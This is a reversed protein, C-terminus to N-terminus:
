CSQLLLLMLRALQGLCEGNIGVAFIVADAQLTSRKGAKNVVNVATVATGTDNLVVDTAFTSGSITAGLSRIRDALPLLIREAVSGRCWKIDFDAQHALAACARVETLGFARRLAAHSCASPCSTLWARDRGLWAAYATNNGPCNPSVTQVAAMM